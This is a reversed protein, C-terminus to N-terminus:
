NWKGQLGSMDWGSFRRKGSTSYVYHSAPVGFYACQRWEIELSPLAEGTSVLGPHPRHFSIQCFETSNYQGLSQGLSLQYVEPVNDEPYCHTPAGRQTYTYACRFLRPFDGLELRKM